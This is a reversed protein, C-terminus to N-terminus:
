DNEIPQGCKWCFKAKYYHYGVGCSPCDTYGYESEPNTVLEKPELLAIISQVEYDKLNYLSPLSAVIERALEQKM